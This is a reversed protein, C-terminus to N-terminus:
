RFGALRVYNPQRSVLSALDVIPSRFPLNALVQDLRTWLEAHSFLQPLSVDLETHVQTAQDATVDVGSGFRECAM